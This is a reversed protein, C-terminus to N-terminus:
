QADFNIKALRNAELLKVEKLLNARATKGEDISMKEDLIDNTIDAIKAKTEKIAKAYKHWEKEAEKCEYHLKGGKKNFDAAPRYEKFWSCYKETVNGDKDVKDPFEVSHGSKKPEFLKTLEIYLPSEPKVKNAVLLETVKELTEKKTM